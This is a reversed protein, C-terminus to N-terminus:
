STASSARAPPRRRTEDIPFSLVDTPADKGRHEANLERSGSRRRRVRGRRPRGRRRGALALAVLREVRARRCRRRSRRRRRDRPRERATPAATPPGCSPRPASPTSTTPRSSGSSSSTASSTRAASACSSSARSTTSSTASSSSARLAPRAAPRGAHHRRHHGDELRLRAAHPVDEDARADHEAGRRPHHVLRQAHQAHRPLRRHRVALGAAAVQICVTEAEGAPEISEIFRM